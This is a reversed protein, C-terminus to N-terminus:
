EYNSKLEYPLDFNLNKSMNLFNLIKLIDKNESVNFILLDKEKRQFYRQIEKNRKEYVSIYHDKNYLLNWNYIVKNDKFESIWFKKTYNYYYGEKIWNFKKIHEKKFM